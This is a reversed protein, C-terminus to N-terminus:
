LEALRANEARTTELSLLWDGRPFGSKACCDNVVDAVDLDFPLGHVVAAYGALYGQAEAVRLMQRETAQQSMVALTAAMREAATSGVPNLPM